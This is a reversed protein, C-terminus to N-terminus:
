VNDLMQKMKSKLSSIAFEEPKEQTYINSGTEFANGSGSRRRKHGRKEKKHHKKHKERGLNHRKHKRSSERSKRKSEKPNKVVSNSKCNREEVDSTDYLLTDGEIPETTTLM